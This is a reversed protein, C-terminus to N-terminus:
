KFYVKDIGKIDIILNIVKKLKKVREKIEFTRFKDDGKMLTELEVQRSLLEYRVFELLESM